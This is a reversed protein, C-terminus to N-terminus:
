ESWMSLDRDLFRALRRNPEEFVELLRRRTEPQLPSPSYGRKLRAGLRSGTMAALARDKIRDPILHKIKQYGPTFRKFKRLRQRAYDDSADAITNSEIPGAVKLAIESVGIHALVRRLTEGPDAKLDDLLVPLLASRPFHALYKEIQAMYMSTDMFMSDRELAEEFTMRPVDLRMRHCYNSYTRDVPHRMMYILRADPMVEAIRAPVDGFHPWRTYTTSAEGCVQDPAAAAFLAKYADLGLARREEKSFFEPEKPETLFVGPHRRLHQWLTTTGSKSAGIILFDPLRGSDPAIGRPVRMGGFRMPTERSVNRDHPSGPHNDHLPANM